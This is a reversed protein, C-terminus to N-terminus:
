PRYLECAPCRVNRCHHGPNHCNLCKYHKCNCIGAVAHRCPCQQDHSDSSHSGGCKYCKVSDKGLPCAKSSKNHGLAHCHSCQVLAPKDSWRQIKVEKRFMAARGKLLTNTISGDLDSIAFTISSYTPRMYNLPKLWRPAMAFVAKMLGPM